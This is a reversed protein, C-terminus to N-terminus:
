INGDLKGDCQYDVHLFVREVFDLGGIKRQLEETIDHTLKLPLGEDLVVHLEVLAKEGIHYVLVHDLCRIRNDHNMAIRLIRSLHEQEARKGVILPIHDFVNLFWSFAVFGCVLIAGIPDAYLWVHDGLYAGSIAVVGTIADNRLDLALLNTGTSEIFYCFTALATKIFIGTLLIALTPLNADPDVKNEIIATVSQLVMLVNGVGMTTSCIIVAVIELRERGRPYKFSDTNNIAWITAQLILSTTIDMFSDIFASMVSYSGSFISAALNGFLLIINLCTVGCALYKEKRRVCREKKDNEENVIDMGNSISSSCGLMIKDDEQYLKLLRNQNAYFEKVGKKIKRRELCGLCGSRNKQPEKSTKLKRPLLPQKEM